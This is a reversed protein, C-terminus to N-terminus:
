KDKREKESKNAKLVYFFVLGVLAIELVLVLIYDPTFM